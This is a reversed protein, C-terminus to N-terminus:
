ELESFIGNSASATLPLRVIKASLVCTVPGVGSIEKMLDSGSVPQGVLYGQIVTRGMRTIVDVPELAEVEEATVQLNLTDALAIVTLMIAVDGANCM